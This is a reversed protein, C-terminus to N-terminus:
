MKLRTACMSAVNKKCQSHHDPFPSPPLSQRYIVRCVVGDSQVGDTLHANLRNFSPKLAPRKRFYFIWRAYVRASVVFMMMM